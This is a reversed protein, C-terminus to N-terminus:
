TLKVKNYKVRSKKVKRVRYPPRRKEGVMSFLDDPFYSPVSYDLFYSINHDLLLLLYVILVRNVKNKYLNLFHKSSGITKTRRIRFEIRMLIIICMYSLLIANKTKNGKLIRKTLKDNDFSSNNCFFLLINHILILDFTTNLTCSSTHYPLIHYLFSNSYPFFISFFSM